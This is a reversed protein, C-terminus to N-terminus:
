SRSRPRISTPLLTTLTTSCPAIMAHPCGWPQGKTTEPRVSRSSFPVAAAPGVPRAQPFDRGDVVMRSQDRLCRRRRSASPGGLAHQRMPHSGPKSRERQSRTARRDRSRDAAAREAAAALCSPASRGTRGRARSGAARDARDEAPGRRQRRQDAEDDGIDHRQHVQRGDPPGRARRDDAAGVLHPHLALRDDARQDGEARHDRRARKQQEHQDQQEGRPARRRRVPDGLHQAPRVVELHPRHELHHHEADHHRQDLDRLDGDTSVPMPMYATKASITSM